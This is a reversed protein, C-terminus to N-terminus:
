YKLIKKLRKEKNKIEKNRRFRFYDKRNAFVFQNILNDRKDFDPYNVTIEEILAKLENDFSINVRFLYVRKTKLKNIIEKIENPIIKPIKIFYINYEDINNEILNNFTEINQCYTFSINNFAIECLLTFFHMTHLNNGDETNDYVYIKSNPLIEENCKIFNKQFAEM